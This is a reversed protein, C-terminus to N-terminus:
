AQLNLFYKIKLAAERGVGGWDRCGSLKLVGFPPKNSTPTKITKIYINNSNKYMILQRSHFM